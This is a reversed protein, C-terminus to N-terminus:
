GLLGLTLLSLVSPEPVNDTLTVDDFDGQVGTSTLLITISKGAQAADATYSVTWDNWTGSGADVPTATGVVVGGIELQVLAYIPVDTRHLVEVSLTYTVGAIATAGVTQSITGGNSYAVVNGNYANPNGAYGGPIWQGSSGTDNWGPIPGYDYACSGGCGINLGGAPLAEFSPNAVSISDAFASGTAWTLSAALALIVLNWKLFSRM